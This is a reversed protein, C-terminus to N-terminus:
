KKRTAFFSFESKLPVGGPLKFNIVSQPLPQNVQLNGLELQWSDGGREVWQLQRPLNSEHDVWIYLSQMRKKMGLTRPTLMLFYTGAVDKSQGLGIQFYEGLFSLKQGLGLFKRNHNKIVGIKLFEAEKAGPSYSILAKPTLHLVLDEPPAFNFHAFDSGQLYLTGKTVTPTKLMSRRMTLTFPAQLTDVKAQAADFREVLDKLAPANQATM